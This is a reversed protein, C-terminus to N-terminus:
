KDSHAAAECAVLASYIDSLDIATATDVGEFGAIYELMGGSRAPKYTDTRSLNVAQNSKTDFLWLQGGLYACEIGDPLVTTEALAAFPALSTLAVAVTLATLPNKM